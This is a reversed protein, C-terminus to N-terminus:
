PFIEFFFSIGALFGFVFAGCAGVVTLIVQMGFHSFVKQPWVAMLAFAVTLALFLFGLMM